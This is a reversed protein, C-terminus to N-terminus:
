PTESWDHVPRGEAVRELYTELMRSMATHRDGPLQSAVRRQWIAGTRGAEIRDRIVGLHRRACDGDVGLEALGLEALPLLEAALERAPLERLDGGSRGPWLLRAALGHRAARYFNTEAYRFPMGPLVDAVCTQMGWTLGLLWAANAAMDTATPGSPLARLEIRLHGGDQPDYIARNWQWVTGHHLRLEDLGPMEGAALQAEADHGSILPILSPFLSVTEAFLEYAGERVWGTGFAVRSPRRWSWEAPDRSDVSQKFLAIRTEDWLLQELFVPSNSALAVALPTVLQAANYTDAFRPPPVRLHLQFSTGAGELTVDDADLEIRDKPGRIDIHFPAQRLRALGAALARYRPLDSMAATDLDSRQLTPLIGIPAVRGGFRAAAGSLDELADAIQRELVGFPDGAAPIPELNYEINFRDLELQLRPDPHADMLEHNVHLARCSEDTLSLELEAGLSVPGQGFDDRALLVRLARLNSELHQGFAAYEADDFQWRDISLGM